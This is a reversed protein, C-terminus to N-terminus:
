LLGIVDQLASLDSFDEMTLTNENNFALVGDDGVITGFAAVIQAGTTQGSLLIPDIMVLDM